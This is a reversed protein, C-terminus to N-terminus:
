RKMPAPPKPPNTSNGQKVLNAMANMLTNANNDLVTKVNGAVVRGVLEANNKEKAAKQAPSQITQVEPKSAANTGPGNAPPATGGQGQSVADKVINEIDKQQALWAAKMKQDSNGAENLWMKFNLNM